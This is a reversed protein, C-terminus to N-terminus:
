PKPAALPVEIGITAINPPPNMTLECTYVLTCPNCNGQVELCWTLKKSPCSHKLFAAQASHRLFSEHATKVCQERCHRSCTAASTTPNYQPHNPDFYLSRQDNCPVNLSGLLGAERIRSFGGTELFVANFMKLHPHTYHLAVKHIRIKAVGLGGM